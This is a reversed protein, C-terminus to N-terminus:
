IIFQLDIYSRLHSFCQATDVSGFSDGPPDRSGWGSSRVAGVRALRSILLKKNKEWNMSQNEEGM